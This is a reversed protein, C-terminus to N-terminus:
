VPDKTQLFQLYEVLMAEVILFMPSSIHHDHQGWPSKLMVHYYFFLNFDSIRALTNEEFGTISLISVKKEKAKLVRANAEENEGSLSIALLVDNENMLNIVQDLETIDDVVYVVHKGLYLFLRKFEEATHYQVEGTGYAFIREANDLIEFMPSFDRTKLMDLTMQYDQILKSELNLPVTDAARNQWRLAIKFETFGELGIKRTFRTVAGPSVGCGDAIEAISAQECQRRNDWIYRWIEKDTTTLRDFCECVMEELNM